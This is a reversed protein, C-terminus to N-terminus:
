RTVYSGNALITQGNIWWGDTVLFQVLPVIDDLISDQTDMPGHGIATVSIGRPGFEKSAADTFQEIPAKLEPYTSTVITCIKGNDNLQRGAEQIFFYAAKASVSSLSDYSVESNEINDVLNIAIDIGGLREGAAEFVRTVDKAQTLDSQVTFADGGSARIGAVTNIADDHAFLSNYHICVRAGDAAFARSILDGPNKTGNGILVTKGLLALNAM